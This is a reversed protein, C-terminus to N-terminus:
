NNFSPAFTIIPNSMRLSKPSLKRLESIILSLFQCLAQARAHDTRVYAYRTADIPFFQPTPPLPCYHSHTPLTITGSKNVLALLACHWDVDLHWCATPM